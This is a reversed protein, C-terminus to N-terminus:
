TGTVDVGIREVTGVRQIGRGWEAILIVAGLLTRDVTIEGTSDSM